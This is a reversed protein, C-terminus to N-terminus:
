IFEKVAQWPEGDMQEILSIRHFELQAPFDQKKIIDFIEDTCSSNRPHMLTIHPEIRGPQFPLGQLILKRLNMFSAHSGIGPLLVGKGDATRQVQGFHIICSITTLRELNSIVTKLDQLEDERCLTVHSKILNYQAPNFTERIREIIIAKDPDIFLTLQRRLLSM